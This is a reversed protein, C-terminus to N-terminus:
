ENFTRFNNVLNYVRVGDTQNIANAKLNISLLISIFLM